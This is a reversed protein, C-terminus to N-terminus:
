PHHSDDDACGLHGDNAYHSRAADCGRPCGAAMDGTGGHDCLQGLQRTAPNDDRYHV